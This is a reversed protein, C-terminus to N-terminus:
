KGAQNLLKKKWGQIKNEAKDVIYSFLKMKNNGINSPLGLYKRPNNSQKIGLEKTIIKRVLNPTYKSFIIELKEYNTTQRSTKSFDELFKRIQKVYKIKTETFIYCDDAYLLHSISPSNRKIKIGEINGEDEM